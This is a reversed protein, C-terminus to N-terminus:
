TWTLKPSAAYSFNAHGSAYVGQSAVVAPGADSSAASGDSLRAPDDRRDRLGWLHEFDPLHAGHRGRALGDSIRILGANRCLPLVLLAVFAELAVAYTAM